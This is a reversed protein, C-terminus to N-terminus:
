LEVKYEDLRAFAFWIDELDGRKRVNRTARQIVSATRFVMRKIAQKACYSLQTLAANGDQYRRQKCIVDGSEVCVSVYLVSVEFNANCHREWVVVTV